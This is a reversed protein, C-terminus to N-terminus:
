CSKTRAAKVAPTFSPVADCLSSLRRGAQMVTRDPRIIAATAGGRRLWRGLESTGEVTLATAGRRRLQERQQATLRTTTIVGFGTGLVIDLRVGEPLMPNPCLTGALQRPRHRNVVLASRRLAPTRSNVIRTRVGPVLHLRPVVTRRIADGVRGGATMAWGMALALGILMRAHPKREQEYTDLVKDPLDGALVGALKWALNM